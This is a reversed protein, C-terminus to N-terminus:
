KLVSMAEPSIYGGILRVATPVARGREPAIVLFYFSPFSFVVLCAFLLRPLDHASPRGFIAAGQSFATM